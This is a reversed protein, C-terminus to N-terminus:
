GAGGADLGGTGGQTDGDEHYGTADSTATTGEPVGGDVDGPAPTVDTGEALPAPQETDVAPEPQQERM